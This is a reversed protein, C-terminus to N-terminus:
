VSQDRKWREPIGPCHEKKRAARVEVFCGCVRCMGNILRDCERCASLRQQYVEGVCREKEPILEITRQIRTLMDADAMERVLCRKCLREM